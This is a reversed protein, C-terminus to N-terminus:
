QIAGLESALELQVMEDAVLRDGCAKVPLRLAKQLAVAMHTVGSIFARSETPGTIYQDFEDESLPSTSGVAQFVEGMTPEGIVEHGGNCGNYSQTVGAIRLLRAVQELGTRSIGLTAAAQETSARGARHLYLVFMFAYQMQKNIRM